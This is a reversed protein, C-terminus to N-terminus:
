RACCGHVIGLDHAHHSIHAYLMDSYEKRYKRLAIYLEKKLNPDELIKGYGIHLIQRSAALDLLNPLEKNSMMDMDPITQLDPTVHYNVRNSEFAKLSIEYIKRFLLPEYVAIVRMAELWNTGSTKIHFHGQTEKNIIPFVSFKDSGSHFSLKYGFYKAIVNHIQIEKRLVSPDGIYDIGKQFEGSFRPAITAFRIGRIKLENAVFYHALPSTVISTEDISIELNIEGTHSCICKFYVSSIFDIAREYVMIIKRLSSVDYLLTVDPGIEFARNLYRKELKEKGIYRAEIDEDSLVAAQNDIYDSCDLTIMTFGSDVAAQVEEIKKLHDGDAGYGCRYGERFVEFTTSDIVDIMSRHTLKMERMSQQALVPFVDYEKFVRVLGNGAVGLRDGAGFTTKRDLIPAPACFPFTNRLLVATEHNLECLTYVYGSQCYVEGPFTSDSGTICLKDHEGCDILFFTHKGNNNISDPYINFKTEFFTLSMEEGLNM